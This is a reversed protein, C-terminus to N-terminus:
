IGVSYGACNVVASPSRAAATFLVHVRHARTTAITNVCLYEGTRRERPHSGFGHACEGKRRARKPATRRHSPGPASRTASGTPGPPSPKGACSWHPPGSPAAPGSGPASLETLEALEALRHARASEAPTFPALPRAFFLAGASTVTDEAASGEPPAQPCRTPKAGTRCAAPGNERRRRTIMWLPESGGSHPQRM